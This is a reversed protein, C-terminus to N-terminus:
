DMSPVLISEEVGTLMLKLKDGKQIIFCRPSYACCIYTEQADQRRIGHHHPQHPYQPRRPSRFNPVVETHGGSNSRSWKM